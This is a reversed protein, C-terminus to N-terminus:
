LRPPETSPYSRPNAVHRDVFLDIWDASARAFDEHADFVHTVGEIVHLEVPSGVGRLASYLTVSADVPVTQDATGHLLLTPPYGTAIKDLLSASRLQTESPNEGVVPHRALDGAPPYFVVCAAVDTAVGANGGHGEVDVANQTASAMLALRAGASHGLIVLKDPEFGLDAAHARTWRIAAKLDHLPAPWVGEPLVRYEAGICTYGLAALPRAVRVGARNCRRFGGGPLNIIATRKSAVDPSPRYIDCLLERDGGRGYVVGEEVTVAGSEIVAM